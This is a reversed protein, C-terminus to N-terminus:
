EGLYDDDSILCNELSGERKLVSASVWAIKLAREKGPGFCLMRCEGMATKNLEYVCKEDTGDKSTLLM